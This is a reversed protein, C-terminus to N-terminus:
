SWVLATRPQHPNPPDAPHPPHPNSTHPAPAHLIEGIGVPAPFPPNLNQPHPCFFNVGRLVRHHVSVVKFANRACMMSM